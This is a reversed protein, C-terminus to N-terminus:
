SIFAGNVSVMEKVIVPIDWDPGFDAGHNNFLAVMGGSSIVVDVPHNEILGPIWPDESVTPVVQEV